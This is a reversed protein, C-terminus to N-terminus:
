REGRMFRVHDRNCSRCHYRQEVMKHRQFRLIHALEPGAGCHPCGSPNHALATPTMLVVHGAEGEPLPSLDRCTRPPCGDGGGYIYILVLAALGAAGLFGKTAAM